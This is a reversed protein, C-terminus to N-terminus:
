DHEDTVSGHFYGFPEYTYPVAGFKPAWVIKARTVKGRRLLEEVSGGSSSDRSRVSRTGDGDCSPPRPEETTVSGVCRVM